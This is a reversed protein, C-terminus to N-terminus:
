EEVLLGVISDERTKGWNVCTRYEYFEEAIQQASRLNRKYLGALAKEEAKSGITPLLQVSEAYGVDDSEKRSRFYARVDSHLKPKDSAWEWVGADSLAIDSRPDFDNDRLVEYRKRYSRKDRTGHFMTYAIGDTYGFSGKTANYVSSAWSEIQRRVHESLNERMSKKFVGIVSQFFLNDGGGIILKDYFGLESLFSRRACWAIGSHGINEEENGLLYHKQANRGQTVRVYGAGRYLQTVAVVDGPPRGPATATTVNIAAPDIWDVAPPLRVLFAFPQVVLQHDLLASTDAVWRENTFFSDADIWAVKTCRAPLRAVALNLMREKQWLTNSPSTTLHIVEDADRGARLEFLSDLDAHVASTKTTFALEVALVYLGQGLGM